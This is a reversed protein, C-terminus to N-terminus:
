CIQGKQSLEDLLSALLRKPYDHKILMSNMKKSLRYQVLNNEDILDLFSPLIRMLYTTTGLVKKDTLKHFSMAEHFRCFRRLSEHGDYDSLLSEKLAEYFLEGIRKFDKKTLGYLMISYGTLAHVFVYLKKRNYVMHSLHWDALGIDSLPERPFNGIIVNTKSTPCLRMTMGEKLSDRYKIRLSM